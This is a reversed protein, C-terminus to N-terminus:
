TSDGEFMAAVTDSTPPSTPTPLVIQRQTGQTPVMANMRIGIPDRTPMTAPM